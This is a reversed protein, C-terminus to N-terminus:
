GSKIEFSSTTLWEWDSWRSPIFRGGDSRLRVYVVLGIHGVVNTGGAHDVRSQDGLGRWLDDVGVAVRRLVVVVPRSCKLAAWGHPSVVGTLDVVDGRRLSGAGPAVVPRRGLAAFVSPRTRGVSVATTVVVTAAASCWATRHGSVIRRFGLIADTLRRKQRIM